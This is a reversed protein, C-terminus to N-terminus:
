QVSYILKGGKITMVVEGFYKKGHFPTNKGKSAFKEKDIVIEKNLDVLVLDGDKGVTISGKNMGLIKAPNRSMLESLKNISIGNKKVLETYCISFATEIGVMGPAGKSKDEETHPAHDTGICDVTGDKIGEIIANIDEKERIPPNVRYNSEETTLAIHHPTVECTVNSGEKKAIRIAKISDITSVHAMHLRAKTVKALYLDRITMLDEAIRMDIKSFTKDEAHSMVIWNNKKAKEMAKMMISSDMVGVGDDTIAVLEKDDDFANLHEISKGGFNETISVCQHIDILGIEKAKNRVYEVVEKTSCIPNTNGMLCVGTYGGKAAARSGSEMDEKYTLGPDRFHAHTDIFSPMLTLGKADIIDIGDKNIERGIETIIGDTILIDGYFSEYADIINANKILLEM